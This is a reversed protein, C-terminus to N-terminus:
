GCHPPRRNHCEVPTRVSQVSSEAEWPPYPWKEQVPTIWMRPMCRQHAHSSNTERNDPRNKVWLLVSGLRSCERHLVIAQRRVRGVLGDGSMPGVPPLRRDAALLELARKWLEAISYIKFMPPARRALFNWVGGSQTFQNCTKPLAVIARVPWPPLCWSWVCALRDSFHPTNGRLVRALYAGSAM